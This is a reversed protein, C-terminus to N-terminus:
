TGMKKILDSIVPKASLGALILAFPITMIFGLNKFLFAGGIAGCIFSGLLGSHLKLRAKNILIEVHPARKLYLLKGLEIGIDTVIGTMHTTRIEAHSIKTIIANQLGMIYCLLAIVINVFYIDTHILHAASVSFVLLLFAELMLSGAYESQLNRARAWNVLIATTMAGAAFSFVFFVALIIESLHGLAMEDAISSIIGTMHSTYHGVALFGAANIAGAVFALILGLTIDSKRDRHKGALQIFTKHM